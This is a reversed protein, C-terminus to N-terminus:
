EREPWHWTGREKTESYAVNERWQPNPSIGDNPGDLFVALNLLGPGAVATVVAPRHEEPLNGSDMVYHIIRGVTPKQDM